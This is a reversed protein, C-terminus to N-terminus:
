FLMFIAKLNSIISHYRHRMKYQVYIWHLTKTPFPNPSAHKGRVNINNKPRETTVVKLPLEICSINEHKDLEFKTFSSEGKYNAQRIKIYFKL